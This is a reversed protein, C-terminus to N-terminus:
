NDAARELELRAAEVKAEEEEAAQLLLHVYWHFFSMHFKM